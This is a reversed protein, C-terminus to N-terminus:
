EHLARLLELLQQHHTADVPVKLQCPTVTILATSAISLRFESLNTRSVWDKFACQEREKVSHINFHELHSATTCHYGSM